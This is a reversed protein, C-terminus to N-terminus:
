NISSLIALIISSDGISLTSTREANVQSAKFPIQAFKPYSCITGIMVFKKVKYKRSSEVSNIGMTINNFFSKAPNNKTKNIGGVDGALHVFMAPQFKKFLQDSQIASTLDFDKSRFKIIKHKKTTLIKNLQKGLFGNGGSILIKM